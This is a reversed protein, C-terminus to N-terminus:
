CGFLTFSYLIGISKKNEKQIVKIKENMEKIPHTTKMTKNQKIKKAKQKARYWRQQERNQRKMEKPMAIDNEKREKIKMNIKNGKKKMQEYKDTDPKM